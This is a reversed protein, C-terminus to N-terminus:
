LDFSRIECNDMRFSVFEEETMDLFYNAAIRCIGNHTVLLVTDEPGYRAKLEELFPYVRGAAQLYSEGGPYRAFFRQKEALYVPDDRRCGELRGYDMEMLRPDTRCILGHSEAALRGVAAARALPSSWVARLPVDRLARVLEEAQRLGTENLPEDTRGLVRGTRNWDTEGHRTLLLKM